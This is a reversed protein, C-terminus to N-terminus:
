EPRRARMNSAERLVNKAAKTIEARGTTKRSRFAPFLFPTAKRFQTGLEVFAAYFTDIGLKRQRKTQRFVGVRARLGKNTYRIRINDRLSGTDVPVASKAAQQVAEAQQRIVDRVPQQMDDPLKRLVRTLNQGGRVRASVKM